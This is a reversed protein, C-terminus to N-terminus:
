NPIIHIKMKFHISFILPNSNWFFYRYSSVKHIVLYRLDFLFKKNTDMISIFWGNQGGKKAKNM